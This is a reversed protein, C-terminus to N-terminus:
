TLHGIPSSTHSSVVKVARSLADRYEVFGDTKNRSFQAARMPHNGAVIVDVLKRERLHSMYSITGEKFYQKVMTEFEDDQTM